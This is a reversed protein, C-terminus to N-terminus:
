IFIDGGCPEPFNHLSCRGFYRGELGKSLAGAPRYNPLEGGCYVPFTWRASM